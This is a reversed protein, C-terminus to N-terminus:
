QGGNKWYKPSLLLFVAVPTSTIGPLLEELSSWCVSNLPRASLLANESMTLVDLLSIQGSNM